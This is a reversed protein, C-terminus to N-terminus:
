LFSKDLKGIRSVSVPKQGFVSLVDTKIGNPFFPKNPFTRMPAKIVSIQNM